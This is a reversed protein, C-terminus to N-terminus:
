GPRVEDRVPNGIWRAMESTVDRLRRISSTLTAHSPDTLVEVWLDHSVAVYQLLRRYVLRGSPDAILAQTEFQARRAQSKEQAASRRKLALAFAAQAVQNEDALQYRQEAGFEVIRAREFAVLDRILDSRNPIHLRRQRDYIAGITLAVGRGVVLGAAAISIQGWEPYSRYNAWWLFFFPMLLQVGGAIAEDRFRPPIDGWLARVGRSAGTIIGM